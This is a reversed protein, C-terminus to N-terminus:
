AAIAQQGDLARLVSLRWKLNFGSKHGNKWAHKACHQAGATTPEWGDVGNVQLGLEELRLNMARASKYGLSKALETPELMVDQEQINDQAPAKLLLPSFNVGYRADTAKTAEIQVFYDPVGL